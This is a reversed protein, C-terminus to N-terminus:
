PPAPPSQGSQLLAPLADRPCFLVGPQQRLLLSVAQLGQPDLGDDVLIIQPVVPGGYRRLQTLTAQLRAGDGRTYLLLYASSEAAKHVPRGAGRGLIYCVSVIGVASFFALLGDFIVDM